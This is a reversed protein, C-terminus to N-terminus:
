KSVEYAIHGKLHNMIDTAEDLNFDYGLDAAPVIDDANRKICLRIVDHRKPHKVRATCILGNRYLTRSHRSCNKCSFHKM